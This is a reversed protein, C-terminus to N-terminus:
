CCMGFVGQRKVRASGEIQPDGYFLVRNSGEIRPPVSLFPFFFLYLIQFVAWFAMLALCARFCFSLLRFVKGMFIRVRSPGRRELLSELADSYNSFGEHKMFARLREVTAGRLEITTSLGAM